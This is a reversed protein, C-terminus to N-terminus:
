SKCIIKAFSINSDVSFSDISATHQNQVNKHTFTEDINVMGLRSTYTYIYGCLWPFNVAEQSLM